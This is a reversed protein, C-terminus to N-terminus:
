FMKCFEVLLDDDVGLNSHPRMYTYQGKSNYWFEVVANGTTRLHYSDQWDNHIVNVLTIGTEKLISLIHEHLIQASKNAYNELKFNSVYIEEMCCMCENMFEANSAWDVKIPKASYGKSNYWLVLRAHNGDASSFIFRHQWEASLDEICDFGRSRAALRIADFRRKKFDAVDNQPLLFHGGKIIPSITLNSFVDYDPANFHWLRKTGRTIATYVWRFYNENTKGGVRNMDVFVNDWEGGQAKHCTIAYGYKCMLANYYEDTLLANKFNDTGPKLHPHRIKFDLYLAVATNRNLHPESTDLFNDLLLYRDVISKGDRCFTIYVNRFRLEVSQKVSRDDQKKKQPVLITRCILNEDFGVVKVITGNFLEGKSYNNRSVVLLDGVVLRRVDEGYLQKRISINYNCADINRYTIIISRTLARLSSEVFDEVINNSSVVDKGDKIHFQAFHREEISERIAIANTLIGSQSDQRVVEDLTVVMCKVGFKNELYTPNLAPSFNMGIPPLQAPDGIFVIKNNRVYEMLDQLLCGSGFQFAENESFNDSILSAEDIFYVKESQHFDRRLLFKLKLETDERLETDLSTTSLRDLSYIYRHITSTPRNTKKNLIFSARGTPAMLAVSAEVDSGRSAMEVMGKLISTKGTGAAGQLIFVQIDEKLYKDFTKLANGQSKTYQFEGVM